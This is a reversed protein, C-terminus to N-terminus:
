LYKNQILYALAVACADSEDDTQFKYDSPLSLWKKVSEQVDEKSAKGDGTCLKKVTTPPIEEMEGLTFLVAGVTRELIKTTRNHRVFSNERVKVDVDYDYTLSELHSVIRRMKQIQSHKNNAKISGCELLKVKKDKVELVAFGPSSLSIDLGLVTLKGM